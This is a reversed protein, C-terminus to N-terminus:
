DLLGIIAFTETFVVLKDGEEVANIIQRNVENLNASINTRSAMQLAAIKAM